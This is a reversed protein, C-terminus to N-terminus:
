VGGITDDGTLRRLQDRLRAAEEYREEHVATALQREVKKVPDLPIRKKIDKELALLVALETSHVEGEEDLESLARRIDVIGRQVARLARKPRNDNLGLLAAARTRMMIVYPRYPEMAHGDADSEAYRNTFDMLRLNREADQVVARYDELIFGALYRHYYMVAEGRLLECDREDLSFDDENGDRAVVAARRSQYYELLSDHGHPRNGDPRGSAEMQLLGLDLRLQIKDRGDDGQIRRASIRGPEYPWDSLIPTIDLSM